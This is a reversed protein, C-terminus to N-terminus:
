RWFRVASFPLRLETDRLEGLPRGQRTYLQCSVRLRVLYGGQTQNTELVELYANPPQPGYASSGEIDARGPGFSIYGVAFGNLRFSPNPEPWFQHRRPCFTTALIGPFQTPGPGADTSPTYVGVREVRDLVEPLLPNATARMTTRSLSSYFAGHLVAPRHGITTDRSLVRQSSVLSDHGFDVVRDLLWGRVLNRAPGELQPMPCTEITPTPAVAAPKQCSAVGLVIPLLWFFRLLHTFAPM